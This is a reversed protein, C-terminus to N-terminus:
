PLLALHKDIAKLYAGVVDDAPAGMMADGVIHGTGDVFITTPLSQVYSLFGEQMEKNATINEYQVGTKEVIQKALEPEEEGDVCIGLLNVGEPLSEYLKQLDPMEGVCPGCWTAWVNIATLKFPLLISADIPADLVTKSDFAVEGTLQEVDKHGTFVIDKEIESIAALVSEYAAKDADAVKTMDPNENYLLTYITNGAEGLPKAKGYAARLEAENAGAYEVLLHCVPLRQADMAAIMDNQAQTYGTAEPPLAAISAKLEEVIRMGETTLYSVELGYTYASLIVNGKEYAGTYWVDPLTFRIGMYPADFVRYPDETPAPEAASADPLKPQSCGTLLLIALLGVMLLSIIKKKM